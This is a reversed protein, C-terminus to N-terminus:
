QCLERRFDKTLPYVYIDKVAANIRHGSDNRTRGVTSGVQIWNAARYCIGRFRSRDVFSELLHIPHGYKEVWDSQVRRCVASLVHSALCKVEIWPLVLFRANGTMYRLNKQRQIPSWGIFADRAAAKWAAAAFLLCAAPRGSCTLVLYRMNEGPVHEFGLYHYRGLLFRLLAEQESGAHPLMLQLPTLDALSCCIPSTDHAIEAVSRYRRENNGTHRPPPLAIENSRHLRLLITRCAIDRLQGKADRWGWIRCVERSLKRRSWQPHEDLLGRIVTVEGATITRGHIVRIAEM